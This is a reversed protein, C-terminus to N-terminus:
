RDIIAAIRASLRDRLEASTKWVIHNLHRTDFHLRGVDDQHVTYVVPIGRGEAFGAEFYVGHRHETFDAVVFRARKINAIIRDAISGQFEQEDVTKAEWGNEECAAVVASQVEARNPLGFSMAIFCSRSGLTGALEEAHAWGSPTLKVGPMEGPEELKEVWARVMVDEVLGRDVLVTMWRALEHWGSMKLARAEALSLRVDDFPHGM